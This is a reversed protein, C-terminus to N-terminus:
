SIVHFRYYHLTYHKKQITCKMMGSSSVIVVEVVAAAVITYQIEVILVVCNVVVKGSFDVMVFSIYLLSHEGYSWYYCM